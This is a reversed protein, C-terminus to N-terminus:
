IINKKLLQYVCRAVWEVLAENSNEEIYQGTMLIAHVLEHLLTIEIENYPVTKGEVSKAIFIERTSSNTCGFVQNGEQDSIDDIFKISYKTGLLEFKKNKLEMNNLTLDMM